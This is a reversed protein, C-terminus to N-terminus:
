SFRRLVKIDAGIGPRALEALQKRVAIGDPSSEAQHLDKESTSFGNLDARESREAFVVKVARFLNKGGVVGEAGQALICLPPIKGDIRKKVLDFVAGDDVVNVAAKVEVLTNDPNDAFWGFPYCPIRDPHDPCDAM